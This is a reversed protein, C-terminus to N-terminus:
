SGWYSKPYYDREDLDVYHDYVRIDPEAGLHPRSYDRPVLNPALVIEYVWDTKLPVVPGGYCPYLFVTDKDLRLAWYPGSWDPLYVRHGTKVYKDVLIVNTM